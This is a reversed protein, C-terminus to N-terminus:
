KKAAPAPGLLVRFKVAVENAVVDFANWEGEGVKHDARKIEFQGTLEAGGDPREKVTFPVTTERAIGKITLPGAVQWRGAGLFKASKAVFHAKPFSSVSLWVPKVVEADADDSGATVSTMDIQMEVSSAAPKAEDLAISGSFRSFGGAVPVNEQKFTFNIQSGKNVVPRPAAHATGLIFLSVFGASLVIHKGFM